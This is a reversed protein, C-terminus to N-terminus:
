SRTKRRKYEFIIENKLRDWKMGHSENTQILNPHHNLDNMNINYIYLYVTDVDASVKNLLISKNNKILIEGKQLNLVEKEKKTLRVYGKSFATDGFLYVYNGIYMISDVKIKYHIRYLSDVIQERHEHKKRAFSELNTIAQLVIRRNRNELTLTSENQKAIQFFEGYLGIYLLEDDNISWKKDWKFDKAFSFSHLNGDIDQQTVDLKGSSYFTFYVPLNNSNNSYYWSRSEGGTLTTRIDSKCSCFAMLVIITIRLKKM